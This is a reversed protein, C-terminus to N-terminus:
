SACTTVHDGQCSDGSRTIYDRPENAGVHNQSSGVLYLKVDRSATGRTVDSVFSSLQIVNFTNTPSSHRIYVDHARSFWKM